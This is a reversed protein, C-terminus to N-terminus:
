VSRSNRSRAVDSEDGLEAEFKAVVRWKSFWEAMSVPATEFLAQHVNCLCEVVHDPAPWITDFAAWAAAHRELLDTVNATPKCHASM